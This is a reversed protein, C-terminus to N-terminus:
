RTGVLKDAIGAVIPIRPTKGQYSSVLLYLWTALGGLALVLWVLGLVMSVISGVFFTSTSSFMVTTIVTGVISLAIYAVFLLGSFAMSQAAHFRVFDNEKEILFFILGTVFGFLYSLAGAVNEDLGSESETSAVAAEEDIDHTISTM